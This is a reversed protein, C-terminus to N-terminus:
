RCGDHVTPVRQAAGSIMPGRYTQVGRRAAAIVGSYRCSARVAQNGEELRSGLLPVQWTGDPFFSVPRPFDREKHALILLRTRERQRRVTACRGFSPTESAHVRLKCREKLESPSFADLKDFVPPVANSQLLPWRSDGVSLAILKAAAFLPEQPM